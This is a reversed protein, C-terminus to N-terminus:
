YVVKIKGRPFAKIQSISDVWGINKIIEIWDTEDFYLESDRKVEFMQLNVDYLVPDQCYLCLTIAQAQRTPFDAANKKKPRVTFM